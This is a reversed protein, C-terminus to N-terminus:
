EEVGDMTLQQMLDALDGLTMDEFAAAGEPYGIKKMYRDIRDHCALYGITDIANDDKHTNVERAFKMGDMMWAVDIPNIVIPFGKRGQLWMSWTIGTRIFNIVPHDYEQQRSEETVQKAQELWTKPTPKPNQITFTWHKAPLETGGIKFSGSSQYKALNNSAELRDAELAERLKRWEDSEPIVNGGEQSVYPEGEVFGGTPFPEPSMFLSSHIDPGRVIWGEKEAQIRYEELIREREQENM